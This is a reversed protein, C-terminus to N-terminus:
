RSIYIHPPRIVGLSGLITQVIPMVVMQLAFAWDFAVAVGIGQPGSTAQGGVAQGVTDTSVNQEM